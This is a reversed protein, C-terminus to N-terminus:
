SSVKRFGPIRVLRTPRFPSSPEIYFEVGDREEIAKVAPAQRRWALAMILAYGSGIVPVQPVLFALGCAALTLLGLAWLRNFVISGPELEPLMTTTRAQALLRGIAPSVAGSRGLWLGIAAALLWWGVAVYILTTDDKAQAGAIGVVALATASGAFLLIATRLFDRFRM